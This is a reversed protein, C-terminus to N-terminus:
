ESSSSNRSAGSARKGEMAEKKAHCSQCLFPGDWPRLRGPQMIGAHVSTGEGPKIEVQCVACMFLKFMNCVPYEADLRQALMASGEEFIEEVVDPESYERDCHSSSESSKRRFMSKFVGKGQKKPPPIPPNKEQPLIDVVICTIDDHLGKIQVAEKVIQTAAVDAPLGRSCNLAMEFTLADWVGDSSIILRGGANSLDSGICVYCQQKDGQLPSAQVWGSVWRVGGLIAAARRWAFPLDIVAGWGEAAM